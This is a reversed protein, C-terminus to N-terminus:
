LVFMHALLIVMVESLMDVLFERSAFVELLLNIFYYLHGTFEFDLLSNSAVALM